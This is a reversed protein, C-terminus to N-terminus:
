GTFKVVIVGHDTGGLDGDPITAEMFYGELCRLQGSCPVAGHPEKYQGGFNYGTVYFAGFGAVHYQGNAGTGDIDNFWPVFIIQDLILDEVESASCGNSPSSGPDTYVWDNEDVDAVCDGGGTDLWGFGGPLKGDGDTDQGAVAACPDHWQGGNGTHFYLTTPTGVPPIVDSPHLDAGFNTEREWECESIILPFTALGSPFGWAASATAHVTSGSFGMVQAFFPKFITGGSSTETSVDVQVTKAGADLDVEDVATAADGANADAYAAATANATAQVCSAPTLACDEAIAIAAADAGNQLERREQYLAGTDVAFAVLGIMVVLSLTVFILSVGREDAHLARARARIAAIAKGM